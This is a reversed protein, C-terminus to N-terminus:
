PWNASIEGPATFAAKHASPPNSSTNSTDIAASRTVAAILSYMWDLADIRGRIELAQGATSLNMWTLYGDKSFCRMGQSAGMSIAAHSALSRALLSCGSFDGAATNMERTRGFDGRRSLRYASAPGHDIRNNGYVHSICPSADHREPAFGPQIEQTKLTHSQHPRDPPSNAAIFRLPKDTSPIM